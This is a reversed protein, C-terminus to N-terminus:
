WGMVQRIYAAGGGDAGYYAVVEEVAEQVEDANSVLLLTANPFDATLQAIFDLLGQVFSPGADPGADISGIPIAARVGGDGSSELSVDNGGLGVVVLDPAGSVSADGLAGWQTTPWLASNNTDDLLYTNPYLYPYLVPMPRSDGLMYDNRLLGIGSECTIHWQAGLLRALVAGYAGTPTKSAKGGARSAWVTKPARRRM